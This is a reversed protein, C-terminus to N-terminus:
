NLSVIDEVIDEEENDINEIFDFIEERDMKNVNTIIFKDNVFPSLQNCNDLVKKFLRPVNTKIPILLKFSIYEDAEELVLELEAHFQKLTFDLEKKIFDRQFDSFTKNEDHPLLAVFYRFKGNKSGLGTSIFVQQENKFSGSLLMKSEHYALVSWTNLEEDEFTRHKKELVRYAEVDRLTALKTLIDKKTEIDAGNDSLLPISSFVEDKNYKKDVQRSHTFYKNQISIDIEDELMYLNQEDLDDLFAEFEKRIKLNDKLLTYRKRQNYSHM